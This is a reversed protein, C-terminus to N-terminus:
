DNITNNEGTLWDFLNEAGENEEGKPIEVVLLIAQKMHDWM